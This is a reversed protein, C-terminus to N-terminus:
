VQLCCRLPSAKQEQNRKEYTCLILITEHGSKNVCRMGEEDDAVPSDGESEEDGEPNEEQWREQFGELGESLAIVEGRVLNYDEDVWVQDFKVPIQVSLYPVSMVGWGTFVGDGGRVERVQMEFDGVQWYQGAMATPLRITSATIPSPPAAGCTHYAPSIYM